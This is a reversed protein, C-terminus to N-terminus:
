LQQPPLSIGLTPELSTLRQRLVFRSYRPKLQGDFHFHNNKVRSVHAPTSCDSTALGPDDLSPTDSHYSFRSTVVPAIPHFPRQLTKAPLQQYVQVGEVQKGPQHVVEDHNEGFREIVRYVASLDISSPADARADAFSPM